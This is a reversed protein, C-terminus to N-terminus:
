ERVSPHAGEVEFQKLTEVVDDASWVSVDDVLAKIEPQVKIENVRPLAIVPKSYKCALDLEVEIWARFTEHLWIDSLLIVAKAPRMQGELLRMIQRKGIDSEQAIGPDFWPCSFNRWSDGLHDSILRDFKVWEDHMRWGHTVFLDLFM